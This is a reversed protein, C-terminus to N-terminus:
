KAIGLEKRLQEQEPTRQPYKDQIRDVEAKIERSRKQYKEGSKADAGIKVADTLGLKGAAVLRALAQTEGLSFSEAATEAVRQPTEATESNTEGGSVATKEDNSVLADHGAAAESRSMVYRAMWRAWLTPGNKETRHSLVFFVVLVALFFLGGYFTNTVQQAYDM